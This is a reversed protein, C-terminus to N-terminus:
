MCVYMRVLENPELFWQFGCYWYVFVGMTASLVCFSLDLHLSGRCVDTCIPHITAEPWDYNIVNRNSTGPLPRAIFLSHQGIRQPARYLM